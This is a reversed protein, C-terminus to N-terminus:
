TRRVSTDADVSVLHTIDPEGESLATAREQYARDTGTLREHHQRLHEEWLPVVFVEVYSDVREGDRYLGWSIAGTRLRSERVQAMADVFATQNTTRVPYTVMVAITRGDGAIRPVLQPEPWYVVTSRDM